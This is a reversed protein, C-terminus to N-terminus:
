QSGIGYIKRGFLEPSAIAARSIGTGCLHYRGIKM